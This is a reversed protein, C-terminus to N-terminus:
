KGGARIQKITMGDTWQFHPRDVFKWYGGWDFGIQKGIEGMIAYTEKDNWQARGNAMPVCDFARGWNHFSDGGRANTTKKGAVTRGKAYEAEQEEFSRYTCYILVDIGQKRCKDLFLEAKEQVHPLLDELKRSAM